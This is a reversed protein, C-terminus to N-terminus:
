GCADLDRWKEVKDQVSQEGSDDPKITLRRNAIEECEAGKEVAAWDGRVYKYEIAAGEPINLTVSWHTDDVPSMEIGAPDWRPYDSGGFDGAIFVKPPTGEPVEAIFTVPVVLREVTVPGAATAESENLSGDVATLSYTYTSGEVVASDTYTTADTVEALLEAEADDTARYVRYAFLSDDDVADWELTVGSLSARTIRVAAPAAPPTTDGSATLTLTPFRGDQRVEEWAQGANTSFRAVVQYEGVQQPALTAEYVDAGDQAGVYAMPTWDADATSGGAPILAAEARIGAVPTAGGTVGDIHIAAQVPVTVGSVLEISRDAASDGLYATGSIAYSPAASVSASLPGILSTDTVPAVAYYYVFGPQVTDDVFSTQSIPRGSLPLFGGVAVPSRYVLYGAAGDVANWKLMVDSSSVRAALGTPAEPVAFAGPVSVTWVEGSNAPITRQVSLNDTNVPEGGFAAQLTLGTPLYGSYDVLVEREQESANLVVLAANGAEKDLRLYAYIGNLDDTLLTIMAGTRLAPNDHRLAALQRYFALMNDDPAPYYDGETDPWPYPARNFPDDQLVGGSDPISPADLSIEDGYYITPAGPLTFQTLAALKQRAVDNGVVFFLRSVDHSSLVNMLAHYAAQPYDEEISRITDNLESPTLAYIIRDGNADNDTYDADRVFGLIGSRLRYNMTSDWEDGGFFESADGWEEGIIVTEPNLRRLVSRFTEWYINNPDRGNDIDPAVDLRWGGIGERGWTQAVSNEDLFFFRRTEIISNNIRPITDFGAWSAYYLPDPDGVCPAPQNARPPVFFFWARFPSELSECAGEDGRFRDFRDFYPSDSSLHNFVGDLIIKMGRQDAESVLRQFDELTGLYPDIQLYDVTDYRHNSRALFIPNLYIATVGLEQLYDLKETIGALDGGYFDSNYYGQGDPAQMERGNIPPENWTEHFLLPLADYFVVEGDIPDNTVDGNRFRDPFIQYIVANRMWEPTYYDPDYVTIQFSNDLSEALAMGAGGERFAQYPAGPQQRTDDEYYLTQNGQTVIFRYWLVTPKNGTDLSAEWLDYGEPTTAVVQMPLVTQAEERTNWVRVSASDLNGAAARLRLTVTTGFPAAGGPTRFLDNRSDHYLAGPDIGATEPAGPQAAGPPVELTVTVSGPEDTAEATAEPQFLVPQVAVAQSSDASDTAEPTAEAEFVPLPRLLNQVAADFAPSHPPLLSAREAAAAVAAVAGQNGASSIPQTLLNAAAASFAASTPVSAIGSAATPATTPQAMVGATARANATALAPLMTETPTAAAGETAQATPQTRNAASTALANNTAIAPLMTETPTTAGETAQATVSATARANATALAPLMTETPTAAGEIPQATPQTLSTASTALANNTAIAPLITATAEPPAVTPQAVASAGLTALANNTAIAPLVTETVAPAASEVTAEATSEGVEPPAATPEGAAEDPEHAVEAAGANFSVPWGGLGSGIVSITIVGVVLMTLLTLWSLTQNKDGM